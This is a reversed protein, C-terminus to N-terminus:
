DIIRPRDPLENQDNKQIPCYENLIKGCHTIATCLGMALSGKKAAQTITKVLEEWTSQPYHESIGKDAVVEVRHEQLFVALLIGTKGKTKHIGLKSFCKRAQYHTNFHLIAQPIYKYISAPFAKNIILPVIEGSTKAEAKIVAQKIQQLEKKTFAM